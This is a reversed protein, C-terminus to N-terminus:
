KIIFKKPIYSKKQNVVLKSKLRYKSFKQKTTDQKYVYKKINKKTLPLSIYNTYCNLIIETIYIKNIILGGDSRSLDEYIYSQKFLNNRFPEELMDSLQSIKENLFYIITERLQKFNSNNFYKKSTLYYFFIPLTNINYENALYKRFSYSTYAIHMKLLERYEFDFGEYIPTLKKINLNYFKSYLDLLFLSTIYDINLYVDKNSNKNIIIQLLYDNFYSNVIELNRIHIKKFPYMSFFRIKEKLSNNIKPTIAFYTNIFFEEDPAIYDM